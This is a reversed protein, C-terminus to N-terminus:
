PAKVELPRRLFSAVRAVDDRIGIALRYEGEPLDLNVIYSLNEGNLAMDHRTLEIKQEGVITGRNREDRATMVLRLRSEVSSGDALQLLKDSPVEIEVPIRFEKKGKPELEGFEVTAELPNDEMGLLLTAMLREALREELTKARIARRYRVRHNGRKNLRVDILQSPGLVRETARYAISYYNSLDAKMDELDELPRNANFIAEGGTENSILFLGSQQNSIHGQDRRSGRSPRAGATDLAYFTVRNANAHAALGNFSSTRDYEYVAGTVERERDPCFERELLLEFMDMGPRQEMGSSLYVVAKRGPLGGLSAVFRALSGVSSEVREDSRTAYERAYNLMEEFVDTCPDCRPINECTEYIDRMSSEGRSREIVRDIGTADEASGDLARLILSRDKTAPVAVELSRGHTALMFSPDGPFDQELFTRVDTLVRARHSPVMSRNDLYFVLHLPDANEAGKLEGSPLMEVALFNTIEVSRGDETIEFDAQTLGTVPNGKRDTVYVDLNVLNVEVSDSFSRTQGVRQQQAWSVQCILACFLLVRAFRSVFRFTNM